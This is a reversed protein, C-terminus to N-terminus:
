VHCEVSEAMTRGTSRIPALWRSGRETLRLRKPIRGYACFRKSFDGENKNCLYKIKTVKSACLAHYKIKTIKSVINNHSHKKSM